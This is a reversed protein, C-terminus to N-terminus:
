PQGGQGHLEDPHNVCTQKVAGTVPDKTLVISKYFRQDTTFKTIGSQLKTGTVPTSAGPADTRSARGSDAGTNDVIGSLKNVAGQVSEASSTPGADSCAIALGGACVITM